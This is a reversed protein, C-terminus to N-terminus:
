KLTNRNKRMTDRYDAALAKAADRQAESLGADIDEFHMKSRRFDPADPPMERLAVDFHAWARVLDGEDKTVTEILALQVHAGINGALAATMLYPIAPAANEDRVIARAVLHYGYQLSADPDGENARGIISPDFERPTPVILSPAFLSSGLRDLCERYRWDQTEEECKAREEASPLEFFESLSEVDQSFTTDQAIDNPSMYLLAGIAGAAILSGGIVLGWRM